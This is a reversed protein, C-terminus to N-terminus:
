GHPAHVDDLYWKLNLALTVTSMIEVAFVLRNISNPFYDNNVKVIM